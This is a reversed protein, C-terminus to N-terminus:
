PMRFMGGGLAATLGVALIVLLVGGFCVVLPLLVAAAAKGTTIEHARAIAIIEVVIAWIGGIAPGVMPIIQLPWFAGTSYAIARLTTEFDRNASKLLMLFLHIIGSSVFPGVVGGIAGGAVNQLIITGVLLAVELGNNGPAGILAMPILSILSVLGGMAGGTVAFLIPPGYGGRCRMRSFLETPHLLVSQTTRWFSDLSAGDREWPPGDRDDNLTPSRTYPEENLTPSQFPNNTDTTEFSPPAFPSSGLSPTYAAALPVDCIASCEPCQAKKGESGDPVRMRSQCTPCQFEIPM